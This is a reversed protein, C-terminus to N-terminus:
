SFDALPFCTTAEFIDRPCLHYFYSSCKFSSMAVYHSLGFLFALGSHVLLNLM